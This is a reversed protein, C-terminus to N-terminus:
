SPKSRSVEVEHWHRMIDYRHLLDVKYEKATQAM